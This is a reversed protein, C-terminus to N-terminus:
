AVDAHRNARSFFREHRDRLEMWRDWSMGWEAVMLTDFDPHGPYVGRESMQKQVWRPIRDCRIQFAHEKWLPLDGGGDDVVAAAVAESSSSSSATPSPSSSASTSAPKAASEEKRRTQRRGESATSGSQKQEAKTRSRRRKGAPRGGRKGAESKKRRYAERELHIAYLSEDRLRGDPTVVFMAKIAAGETEWRANLGSLHALVSDNNPLTAIPDFVWAYCRLRLLGGQQELTMLEIREDCLYDRAYMPFSPDRKVATM